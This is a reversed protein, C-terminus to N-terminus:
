KDPPGKLEVTNGDPDRIYISPGSGEAGYRTAEDGIDVGHLAERSTLPGICPTSPIVKEALTVWM